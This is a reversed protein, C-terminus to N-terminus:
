CSYSTVDSNPAFGVSLVFEFVKFYNLVQDTYILCVLGQVQYIKNQLLELPITATTYYMAFTIYIIGIYVLYRKRIRHCVRM